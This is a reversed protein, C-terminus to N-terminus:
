GQKVTFYMLGMAGRQTGGARVYTDCFWQIYNKQIIQNLQEKDLHM